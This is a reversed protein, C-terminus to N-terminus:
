ADGGIGAFFLLFEFRLEAQGIRKQGIDILFDAFGKAHDLFLAHVAFLVYSDGAHCKHDAGGAFNLMNVFLYLGVAVCFFHQGVQLRRGLTCVESLSNAVQVSEDAGRPTKWQAWHVIYKEASAVGPTALAQYRKRESFLGGQEIYPTGKSVVWLDVNSRDIISSTTVTFGVFLGLEVVILVVAFVIGTLTVALRIPDHTLNRRALPPM